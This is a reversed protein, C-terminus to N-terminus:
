YRGEFIGCFETADEVAKAVGTLIESKMARIDDDNEMEARYCQANKSLRPVLEAMGIIDNLLGAILQDLGDPDDPELSPLYFLDPERLELKAELLPEKQGSPDMNDVLYGLCCGVARRLSETVVNDVYNVYVDWCDNESNTAEFLTKNEALLAHISEAAKEIDAYRKAVKETREDLSLLADKRRDKREILPTKTWPELIAEIKEVNSQTAKLRTWLGHVLKDLETIYELLGESKWCLENEGRSILSDITAVELEILNFEVKRSTRRINNYEDVTRGLLTRFKRFTESRESM